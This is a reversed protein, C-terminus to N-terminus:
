LESLRAVDPTPGRGQRQKTEKVKRLKGIGHKEPHPSSVRSKHPRVNQLNRLEAHWGRTYRVNECFFLKM